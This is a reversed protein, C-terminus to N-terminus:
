PPPTHPGCDGASPALLTRAQSPASRRVGYTQVATQVGAKCEPTNAPEAGWMLLAAATCATAYGQRFVHFMSELEKALEVNKQTLVHTVDQPHFCPAPPM